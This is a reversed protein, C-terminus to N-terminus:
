GVLDSTPHDRGDKATADEHWTGGRDLRGDKYAAKPPDEELTANRDMLARGRYLEIALPWSRKSSDTGPTPTRL